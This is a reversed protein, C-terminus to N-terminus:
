SSSRREKQSSLATRLTDNILQHRQAPTLTEWSPLLDLVDDDLRVIRTHQPHLLPAHRGLVTCIEAIADAGLSKCTKRFRPDDMTRLASVTLKRNALQRFTGHTFRIDADEPASYVRDYNRATTCATNALRQIHYRQIGTKAAADTYTHPEHGFGFLLDVALLKEDRALSEFFLRHRHKRVIAITEPSLSPRDM